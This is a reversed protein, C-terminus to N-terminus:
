DFGFSHLQRAAWLAVAFSHFHELFLLAILPCLFAFRSFALDLCPKPLVLHEFSSSVFLVCDGDKHDCEMKQKRGASLLRHVVFPLGALRGRLSDLFFLLLAEALLFLCSVLSFNVYDLLGCFGVFGLGLVPFCFFCLLSLAVSGYDALDSSCV